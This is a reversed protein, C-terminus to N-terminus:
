LNEEIWDAIEDFKMGGDGKIAIRFAIYYPIEAWKVVEPPIGVALGGYMYGFFTEANAKTYKKPPDIVGERVAQECLVGTPDYLDGLERLQYKGQKYFGSRLDAVWADKVEQNMKM